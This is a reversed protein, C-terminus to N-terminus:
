IEKVKIAISDNSAPRKSRPAKAKKNNKKKNSKGLNRVWSRTFLLLDTAATAPCLTKCWPRHIFLSTLLILITGIFLTLSGVMGFMIGFPEYTLGAPNQFYFNCTLVALLIARPFWVLAKHKLSVAKANTLKSLCQQATGM